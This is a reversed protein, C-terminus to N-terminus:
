PVQWWDLRNGDHIMLPGDPAFAAQLFPRETGCGGSRAYGGTLAAPAPLLTGRGLDALRYGYLAWGCADGSGEQLLAVRGTYNLAALGWGSNPDTTTPPVRLVPGAQGSSLRWLSFTMPVPDRLAGPAQVAAAVSQGDGSLTTGVGGIQWSSRWLPRGASDQATLQERYTQNPGRNDSSRRLRVAGVPFSTGAPLPLATGDLQWARVTTRGDQQPGLLASLVQGDPSFAVAQVAGSVAWRRRVTGSPHHLRLEQGESSAFQQGDPHVALLTAPLASVTHRGARDIRAIRGQGQGGLLAVLARQGTLPVAAVVAEGLAGQVGADPLRRVEPVSGRRLTVFAAGDPAPWGGRLGQSPPLRWQLQGALGWLGLTQGDLVGGTQPDRVSLATLLRRGVWHVQAGILDLPVTGLAFTQLVGNDWVAMLPRGFLDGPEEPIIGMVAVRTGSPHLALAGPRFGAPLRATRIGQGQVVLQGEEIRARTQGTPTCAQLDQETAPCALNVHLAPATPSVTFRIRVPRDQAFGDARLDLQTGQMGLLTLRAWRGAAPPAQQIRSALLAGSAAKWRKLEGTTDLTFITQSDASWAVGGVPASDVSNVSGFSGAAHGPIQVSPLRQVAAASTLGLLLALALLPARVTM